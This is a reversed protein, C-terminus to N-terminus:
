RRQRRHRELDLRRRQGRSAEPRHVKPAPQLAKALGLEQGAAAWQDESWRDMGIAAAAARAYVRCDLAENRERIKQWEYYRQGSRRRVRPVLQEACLQKFYEEAHQPFHCWGFPLGEEEAKEPLEAGLWGYLEEKLVSVGVPWLMIGRKLVRGTLAKVEQPTPNGIPRSLSDRGKVAIVKSRPQRRVWRYVDQTQDSSDVATIRVHMTAGSAHIWPSALLRELDKWVEAKSPEGPLTRYDVSWSEFDPGWGVVELELRDRQVDVGCTLVVAGAPVIGVPYDERRRHLKEWEPTEGKEQWPEGLQQNVWVKLRAPTNEARLFKAAIEGWSLWGLPAYLASIHYGRELDGNEPAQPVWEALGGHGREKLMEPKHHEHIKEGCAECRLWIERAGSLLDQRLKARTEGPVKEWEIGRKGDKRLWEIRQLHECHPCPVLYYRQDTLLFDRWIRSRGILTPTSIELTKSGPYNQQGREALTIPDGEEDLDEPFADVEDLVLYKLPMSRLDAASQASGFVVLGGPYHKELTTNSSDRSKKPAVKGALTESRLLPDVRQRSHRRLTKDSPMVVMMPAPTHDIVYGLLNLGIETVGMQSGKPIVVKRVPSSASLCDMPERLYPTRDTEWPGYENSSEETLVRNADAWESVTIEPEPRLGALFAERAALDAATRGLLEPTIEEAHYIM